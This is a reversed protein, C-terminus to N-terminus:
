MVDSVKIDDKSFIVTLDSSSKAQRLREAVTVWRKALVQAAMTLSNSFDPESPPMGPATFLRDWDVAQVAARVAALQQEEELRAARREEVVGDKSSRKASRRPGVSSSPTKESTTTGSTGGGFGGDSSLSMSTTSADFLDSIYQMASQEAAVVPKPKTSPVTLFETEEEDEEEEDLSADTVLQGARSSSSSGTTTSSSPAEEEEAPRLAAFYDVFFDRFEGTTVCSFKFKQIYAKAFVLFREAGVLRELLYLLHFGKEYPVSSFAAEPDEGALPWVLRTFKGDHGMRSIDDKLQNWGVQASLKLYDESGKVKALIRRELWV